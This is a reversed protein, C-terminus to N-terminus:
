YLNLIEVVIPYLLPESAYFRDENDLMGGLINLIEFIFVVTGILSQTYYTAYAIRKFKQTRMRVRRQKIILYIRAATCPLIVVLVVLALQLEFVWVLCVIGCIILAVDFLAHFALVKVMKKIVEDRNLEVISERPVQAISGRREFFNEDAIEEQVEPMQDVDM